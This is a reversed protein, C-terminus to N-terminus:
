MDVVSAQPFMAAVDAFLTRLESSICVNRNQAYADCFGQGCTLAICALVREPPSLSVASMIDTCAAGVLVADLDDPTMGAADLMSEVVLTMRRMDEPLEDTPFRADLVARIENRVTFRPDEKEPLAAATEEFSALIVDATELTGRLQADMRSARWSFHGNKYTVNHLSENLAYQLSTTFQIEVALGEWEPHRESWAAKPAVVLHPENYSLDYPKYGRELGTADLVPLNTAVFEVAADRDGLNLLVVKAAVVDPLDTISEHGGLQMKMFISEPSKVRADIKANRDKLAAGLWGEIQERLADLHPFLNNYQENFAAPLIV